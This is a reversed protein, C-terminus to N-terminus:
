RAAYPKLGRSRLAENARGLLDDDSVILRPWDPVYLEIHPLDDFSQDMFDNDRDWDMGQRIEIGERYAIHRIIGQMYYFRAKKKERVNRSESDQPWPNVGKTYPVVDAAMCPYTPNYRGAEDRPIHRSDLTKSVGRRINAIQTDLTRAGQTISHDYIELLETFIIQLDPHLTALEKASNSGYSFAM